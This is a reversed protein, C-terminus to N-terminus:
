VVQIKYMQSILGAALGIGGRANQKSLKPLHTVSHDCGCSRPPGHIDDVKSIGM